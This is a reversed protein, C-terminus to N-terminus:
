KKKAFVEHQKIGELRKQKTDYCYTKGSKKSTMCYKPKSGVYKISLNYPM